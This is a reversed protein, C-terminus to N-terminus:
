VALGRVSGPGRCQALSSGVVALSGKLGLWNETSNTPWLANDPRRGSRLRMLVLAIIQRTTWGHQESRGVTQAAKVEPSQGM